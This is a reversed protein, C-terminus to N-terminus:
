KKTVLDTTACHHTTLPPNGPLDQVIYLTTPPATLKSFKASNIGLVKALAYLEAQSSVKICRVVNVGGAPPVASVLDGNPM